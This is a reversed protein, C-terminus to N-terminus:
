GCRKWRRSIRAGRSGAEYPADLGCWDAVARRLMTLASVLPVDRLEITIRDDKVAQDFLINIGFANGLARYIDKVPTDRSFAVDMRALSGDGLAEQGRFGLRSPM